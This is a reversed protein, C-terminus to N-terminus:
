APPQDAPANDPALRTREDRQGPEGDEMSFIVGTAELLVILSEVKDPQELVLSLRAGDALKRALRKRETLRLSPCAEKLREAISTTRFGRGSWDTWGRGDDKGLIHLTRM